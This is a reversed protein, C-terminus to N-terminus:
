LGTLGSLLRLKIEVFQAITNFLLFLRLKLNIEPLSFAAPYCLCRCCCYCYCYCYSYSIPLFTILLPSFCRCNILNFYAAPTRAAEQRSSGRTAESRSMKRLPFDSHFYFCISFHLFQSSCVLPCLPPPYLFRSLFADLFCSFTLIRSFALLTRAYIVAM